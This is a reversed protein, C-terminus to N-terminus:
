RSNTTDTTSSVVPAVMVEAPKYKISEAGLEAQMTFKVNGKEDLGLDSFIINKLINSKAFVDSQSAVASYSRAQGSLEVSVGGQKGPIYKLSTFRINQLTKEQLFAFFTSPAVHSDLLTKSSNFRSDLTVLDQITVLDLRERQNSLETKKAEINKSTLGAFLYSGGFALVTLVFIIIAVLELFNVPKRGVLSSGSM